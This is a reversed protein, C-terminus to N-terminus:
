NRHDYHHHEVVQPPEPRRGKLIRVLGQFANGLFWVIAALAAASLLRDFTSMSPDLILMVAGGVAAWVTVLALLVLMAGLLFRGLSHVFRDVSMSVNLLARAVTAGARYPVPLHRVRDPQFEILLEDRPDTSM